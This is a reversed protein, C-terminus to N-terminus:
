LSWKCHSHYLSTTKPINTVWGFNQTDTDTLFRNALRCTNIPWITCKCGQYAIISSAMGAFGNFGNDHIYIIIYIVIYYIYLEMYYIYSYLIYTYIYLRIIVTKGFQTQQGHRAEIEAKWAPITRCPVLWLAKKKHWENKKYSRYSGHPHRLITSGWTVM